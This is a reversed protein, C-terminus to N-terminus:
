AKEKSSTQQSNHEGNSEGRASILIMIAEAFDDRFIPYVVKYEGIQEPKPHNQKVM